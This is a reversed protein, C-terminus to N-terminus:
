SGKKGAVIQDVVWELSEGSKIMHVVLQRQFFRHNKPVHEEFKEYGGGTRVMVFNRKLELISRQSGILYLHKEIHMIPITIGLQKIM